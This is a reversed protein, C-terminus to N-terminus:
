FIPSISIFPSSGCMGSQFGFEARQRAWDRTRTGRERPVLGDGFSDVEAGTFVPRGRGCPYGSMSCPPLSLVAMHGHQECVRAPVWPGDGM